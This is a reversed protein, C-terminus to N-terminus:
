GLALAEQGARYHTLDPSLKLSDDRFIWLEPVESRLLLLLQLSQEHLPMLLIQQLLVLCQPM